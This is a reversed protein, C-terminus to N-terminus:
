NHSFIDLSFVFMDDNSSPEEIDRLFYHTHTRQKQIELTVNPISKKLQLVQAFFVDYEFCVIHIKPLNPINQFWEVWDLKESEARPSHNPYLLSALFKMLVSQNLIEDHAEKPFDELVPEDELFCKMDFAPAIFFLQDVSIKSLIEPLLDKIIFTGSSDGAFVIPRDKPLYNQECLLDLVNLVEEKLEEYSVKPLKQHSLAFIKSKTKEAFAHLFEDHSHPEEFIFANGIIWIISRTYESPEYVHINSNLQYSKVHDSTPFHRLSTSFHRLYTHLFQHWNDKLDNINIEESGFIKQILGFSIIFLILFKRM